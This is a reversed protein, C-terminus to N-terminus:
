AGPKTAADLRNVGLLWRRANEGLEDVAYGGEQLVVTPLGLAAVVAGAAEFGDASLALDGIPDDVFTDLGLSVVVFDPKFAVIESCAANLTHLYADDDTHAPLPFNSTCGRGLSSGVEDRFGTLYPYARHPDGHLSVFQVDARDYFIQQTGNGHHYDVDLVTVKSGTSSALHEAVIAANNFFCYGGYLSRAAHHGPPRCLGYAVPAGDLVHEAATLATDVASRAADYTGQTLPTTTEFCWWGLRMAVSAPERAPGMGERLAHMAFVDPVVDHTHGREHQYEEWASELFHVLGPDHVAEIPETGWDDPATFEFSDDAALAARIIEAREPHELPEQFASAELECQPHHLRHRLTYVVKVRSM